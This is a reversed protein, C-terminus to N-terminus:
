EQYAGEIKVTGIPVTKQLAAKLSYPMSGEQIQTAVPNNVELANDTTSGPESRKVRVEGIFLRGALLRGDLVLLMPEAGQENMMLVIISKRSYLGMEHEVREDFFMHKIASQGEESTAKGVVSGSADVALEFNFSIERTGEEAIFNALGKGEWTFPPEMEQALAVTGLFTMAVVSAAVIRRFLGTM